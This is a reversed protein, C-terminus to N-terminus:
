ATSCHCLFTLFDVQKSFLHAPLTGALKTAWVPLSGFCMAQNMVDDDFWGEAAIGKM